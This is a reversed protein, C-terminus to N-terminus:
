KKQTWKGDRGKLWEGPKAKDFNRTGNVEAVKEPPINQKAAILAYLARRDANEDTILNQASADPPKVAEVYGTYVEGIKGESKAQTLKPLREAFRKQLEGMSAARAAGVLVALVGVVAWASQQRRM